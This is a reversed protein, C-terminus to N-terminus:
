RGPRKVVKVYLKKRKLKELEGGLMRRLAAKDEESLAEFPVYGEQRLTTPTYVPVAGRKLAHRLVLGGLLLLPLVFLLGAALRRGHARKGRM